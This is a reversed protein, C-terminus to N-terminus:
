RETALKTMREVGDDDSMNIAKIMDDQDFWVHDDDNTVNVQILDKAPVLDDDDKSVGIMHVGDNEWLRISEHMSGDQREPGLGALLVMHVVFTIVSSCVGRMFGASEVCEVLVHVHAASDGSIALAIM